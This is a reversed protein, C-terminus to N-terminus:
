TASRVYHLFLSPRGEAAGRKEFKTLPRDADRPVFGKHGAVNRLMPEADLVERMWDALDPRDTALKVFGGPELRSALLHAFVKQILRRKAHRAKPWPDPHNIYVGHLGGEAVQHQLVYQAPLQSIRVRDMVGAAELRAVAKAVGPLYIEVGVLNWEPHTTALHTLFEGNGFGIEMVVPGMTAYSDPGLRADKPLGIKPLWRALRAHQGKTVYGNKRGYTRMERQLFTDRINRELRM